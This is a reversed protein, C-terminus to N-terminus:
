AAKKNGTEQKTIKLVIRYITSQALHHKEELIPWIIEERKGDSWLKVYDEYILRDRKQKRPNLNTM